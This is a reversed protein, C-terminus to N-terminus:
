KLIIIHEKLRLFTSFSGSFETEKNWNGVLDRVKWRRRGQFERSVLGFSGIFGTLRREEVKM